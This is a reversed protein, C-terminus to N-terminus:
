EAESSLCPDVTDGGMAVIAVVSHSDGVVVAVTGGRIAGGLGQAILQMDEGGAGGRIWEPLCLVLEKM